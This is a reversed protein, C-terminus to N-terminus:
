GDFTPTANTESGGDRTREAMPVSEADSFRLSAFVGV